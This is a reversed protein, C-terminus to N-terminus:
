SQVGKSTHCDECGQKDIGMEIHCGMCQRHYAAKLGPRDSLPEAMEGHCSRCPTPRMGAPSRHHCGGCLTETDGHFRGALASARAGEDLKAVIKAHPLRSPEYRDTLVDIVVTEPFDDSPAPLPNLEVTTLVPPPLEDPEVTPRPGSHCVMCSRENRQVAQARHCGACSDHDATAAHCGVCSHRAAPDHYAQALVVGGGEAAGRLTHCEDCARLTQHHCTSCSSTRPEHAAHDFPVVNSRAEASAVWLLDPQGRVLRPVEDLRRIAEVHERDHCGVCLVPGGELQARRRELHCGVCDRHSANALSPTKDVDTPGHCSECAEETGKVYTLKQLSEDWVHHCPDCKEPYAAAHRAHLSYDFDMRIRESTGAPRRVHCEGCTLPGAKQSAATRRRHCGTCAEHYATILRDRGAVNATAALSPSLGQDDVTHCAECGEVELAATHAAHNFEVAPRQMEGHGGAFTMTVTSPPVRRDTAERTSAHAPPVATAVALGIVLGCTRAVM